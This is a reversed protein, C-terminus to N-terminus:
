RDLRRRSIKMPDKAESWVVGSNSLALHVAYKGQSACTGEVAMAPVSIVVSPM